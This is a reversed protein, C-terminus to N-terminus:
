KEGIYTKVARREALRFCLMMEALTMNSSFTWHSHVRDVGPTHKTVVVLGDVDLNGAEIESALARLLDAPKIDTNLPNRRLRAVNLRDPDVEPTDPGQEPVLVPNHRPAHTCLAPTGGRFEEEALDGCWDPGLRLLHGCGHQCKYILVEGDEAWIRWKHRGPGMDVPLPPPIPGRSIAVTRGEM